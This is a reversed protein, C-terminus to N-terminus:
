TIMDFTSCMLTLNRPGDKAALHSYMWESAQLKVALPKWIDKCLCQHYYHTSPCFHKSDKSKNWRKLIIAVYFKSLDENNYHSKYFLFSNACLFWSHFDGLIDRKIKPSFLLVNKCTEIDTEVLWLWYAKMRIGNLVVLAVNRLWHDLGNMQIQQFCRNLTLVQFISM